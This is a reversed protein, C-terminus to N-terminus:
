VVFSAFFSNSMIKGLYLERFVQHTTVWRNLAIFVMAELTDPTLQARVGNQRHGRQKKM